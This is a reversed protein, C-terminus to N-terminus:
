RIIGCAECQENLYMAQLFSIAMNHNSFTRFEKVKGKLWYYITTKKNM